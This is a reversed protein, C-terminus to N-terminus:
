SAPRPSGAVSPTMPPCTLTPHPRAGSGAGAHLETAQDFKEAERSRSSRRPTPWGSMNSRALSSTTGALWGCAGAAVRDRGLRWAPPTRRPQPEAHRRATRAGEKWRGRLPHQGRGMFIGSPEVMYTGLETREGNVIAYGYQEKLAERKAKREAAAAKREERTLSARAEREAEVVGVAPAFDVEDVSLPPEVGLEASFDHLFNRM